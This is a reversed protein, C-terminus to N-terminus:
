EFCFFFCGADFRARVVWDYRKGNNVEDELVLKFAEAFRQFLARAIRAAELPDEYFKFSSPVGDLEPALAAMPCSSSMEVVDATAVAQAVVPSFLEELYARRRASWDPAESFYWFVRVECGRGAPPEVMMSMM